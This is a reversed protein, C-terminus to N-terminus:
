LSKLKKPDLIKSGITNWCPPHRKLSRKQILTKGLAAGLQEREAKKNWEIAM